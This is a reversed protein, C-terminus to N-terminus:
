FPSCTDNLCLDVFYIYVNYWTTTSINKKVITSITFVSSWRRISYITVILSLTHITDTISSIFIDAHWWFLIYMTMNQVPKSLRSSNLNRLLSAKWRKRICRPTFLLWSTLFLLCVQSYWPLPACWTRWSMLALYVPWVMNESQQLAIIVTIYSISSKLM